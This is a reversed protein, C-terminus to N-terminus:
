AYRPNFHKYRTVRLPTAETQAEVRSEPAAPIMMMAIGLSFVCDDKEGEKAEPRGNAKIVFSLLERVTQESKIIVSGDRLCRDLTNVLNARTIQTTKWGKQPPNYRSGDPSHTRSFIASQPYGRHEISVLSTEGNNNREVGVFATNYWRGLLDLQEGYADAELQARFQAVQEGTHQDLVDAVSWDYKDNPQAGEVEIGEAVDAGIVYNRGTQPRKFVSLWGDNNPQFVIHKIGGDEVEALYGRMPVSTQIALLKSRDFRGRGSALFAEIDSNHVQIGNADFSHSGSLSIDYVDRIGSPEVKAVTDFLVMTLRPSGARKKAPRLEHRSVKRSSIFGIEENFKTAEETRLCLEHGIYKKGNGALKEVANHKSTIGFGLLLLQIDSVFQVHKSFMVVRPYGYGNFGDSEFLGRLFERVVARPSRWICEPVCVTRKWYRGMNTACGIAGLFEQLKNKKWVRVEIGGKKNGVIRTRAQLGLLRRLLLTIDDVVDLDRIDCAFSLTNGSFSGDGMYYGLLRGWEENIKVSSSISGLTTWEVTFHEESFRPPLLKIEIGRSEGLSAWSGNRTMVPHKWTGTISYGLSTEMRFTDAKGQPIFAQVSCLTAKMGPRVNMIPIPGLSTGVRTEGVLCLPYEQKFLEENGGCNNAIAWRRWRLQELTLGHKAQIQREYSSLSTQFRSRDTVAMSYKPFDRWSLFLPIFDNQHQKAKVWANYFYGGMGNATGEIIVMSEPTNPVSNLLATMITEADPYYPVESALVYLPTFGRGVTERGATAVLIRGGQRGDDRRSFKMERRSSSELAIQEPKPSESYFRQTISFLYESTEYNNAVVVADAPHFRVARYVEANGLTSMGTKRPKLVIIRVPIGLKRQREIEKHVILQHPNLDLPVVHGHEDSIKLVDSFYTSGNQQWLRERVESELKTAITM